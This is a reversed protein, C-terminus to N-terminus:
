TKYFYVWRTFTIMCNYCTFVPFWIRLARLHSLLGKLNPHLVNHCACELSRHMNVMAKCKEIYSLEIKSLPECSIPTSNTQLLKLGAAFQIKQQDAPPQVNVVDLPGIGNQIIQQENTDGANQAPSVTSIQSRRGSDTGSPGPKHKGHIQREHKSRNGSSSFMKKAFAVSDDSSDVDTNTEPPHPTLPPPLENYEEEMPEDPQDVPESKVLVEAIAHDTNGGNAQEETERDEMPEEKIQFSLDSINNTPCNNLWLELKSQNSACEQKYQHWGSVKDICTNCVMTSLKDSITIEVAVFQLIKQPLSRDEVTEDFLSKLVDSKECLCLRCCSQFNGLRSDAMAEIGNFIVKCIDGFVSLLLESNQLKPQYNSPPSKERTHMCPDIRTSAIFLIHKIIIDLVM